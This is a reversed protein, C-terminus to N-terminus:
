RRRKGRKGRYRSAAGSQEWSRSGMSRESQLDWSDARGGGIRKVGKPIEGAGKIKLKIGFEEELAKVGSGGSGVVAGIAGDDVFLTASTDSAMDVHHVQAGTSRQIQRALEAAALKRAPSQQGAGDVPVVVIQEGFSFIEHTM